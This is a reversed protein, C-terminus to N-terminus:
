MERTPLPSGQMLSGDPARGLSLVVEHLLCEAIRRLVADDDAILVKM